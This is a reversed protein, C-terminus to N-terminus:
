KMIIKWNKWDLDLISDHHCNWDLKNPPFNLFIRVNEM